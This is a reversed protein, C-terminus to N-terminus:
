TRTDAAIVVIRIIKWSGRRSKYFSEHISKVFDICARFEISNLKLMKWNARHHHWIYIHIIIKILKKKRRHIKYSLNCWKILHHPNKLQNIKCVDFRFEHKQQNTKKKQHWKVSMMIHKHSRIACWLRGHKKKKHWQTIFM